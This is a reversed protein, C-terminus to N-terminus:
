DPLLLAPSVAFVRGEGLMWVERPGAFLGAIASDRVNLGGALAGMAPLILRTGDAIFCRRRLSKGRLRIRAVPHLHGAIEPRPGDTSPEHRLMIGALVAHDAVDGGLGPAADPDHNGTLWLWDRGAQLAALNRMDAEDLRAAGHRDHFSDGMAIIRRPSFAAVALAVAGLTVRTDYPPLFVGRRAHSSAKELHLDSVLLTREAPLYLAGSAHPWAEIGGIMIAPPEMGQNASLATM